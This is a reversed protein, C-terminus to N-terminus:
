QAAEITRQVARRAVAIFKVGPNLQDVPLKMVREGLEAHLGDCRAAFREIGVQVLRHLHHLGVLGFM